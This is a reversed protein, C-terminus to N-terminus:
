QNSNSLIMEVLARVDEANVGNQGDINGETPEKGEKLANVLATVDAIDVKKDDNVDGKLPETSAVKKFLQVDQQGSAYCSFIPSGSNPNYRLMNRTNSGQFTITANGSEDISILAKANDDATEETKLHNASSSAAYLYGDGVNFYWGKVDGELTIRQIDIDPLLSGDTDVYVTAAARNNSNQTTSLAEVNEINAIVVVDNAALTTVDTVLEFREEGKSPSKKITVNVEEEYDSYSTQDVATVHVTVTVNGVEEGVLYSGDNEVVLKDENGSSFSVTYDDETVGEATTVSVSFKGEVGTFVVAPTLSVKTAVHQRADAVTITYSGTASFYKNNGAFTATITATGEKAGITVVGSEADVAAIEANSSSYTIILDTVDNGAPNTISLTPEEFEAQNPLANFATTEGFSLTLKEKVALEGTLKYLHVPKQNAYSSSKYYRFRTQNSAANYRLYASSSVINAEGDNGFSIANTIADNKVAMGNLDDTQGIYKGSASLLSYNEGEGEKTIFFVAEKNDDTAAIQNDDITVEISNGVADLTELGGNFALSGDEYVILYAGDELDETSTVKVFPNDGVSAKITYSASVEKSPNGAEDYAYAYITIPRTIEISEDNYDIWTAKNDLSYKVGDAEEPVIIKVMTGAEVEGAPPNFSPTPITAPRNFAVLYNNKDFEPTGNFMKVNGCVTVEDGVKLDDKSSFDASDLGKGSYVQMQTTTKGDDSIWYTISKYTGNYSDVQSIVGKVYVVDSTTSGLTNIFVIAEAVTYPQDATGHANPDVVTLKYSASGPLYNDNGAFSATIETYGAVTGLTVTGDNAVTAVNTNSSEWTVTLNNPNTLAPATFSEGLNITFEATEFALGAEEKTSRKLSVLQNGADFEYTSNHKKLNGFVVVEDGVQIDDESAFNEGNYSKGRYAQLQDSSTKGDASINYSINGYQPNFATVIESVVGTAYVETLGDDADIAARAQAVTYPNKETGPANPDVVTVTFAKTGGLFEDVEDWTATITATGAAVGTVITGSVSAVTADSTSLSLTPGDTTVETTEGKNITTSGITVTADNKSDSTKEKFFTVKSFQIFKNKNDTATITLNFTFKYYAGSNWETGSTPTFENDGSLTVEPRTIVDLVTSFDADSAVTLTLSNITVNAGTGLTLVIKSIASGMATKTYVTRDVETLNKGGIRWPNMQTNGTFNWTIGDSEIDCNNAYVNNSGQLSGTTDLTYFVVEDGWAASAVAILLLTCLYRLKKIM